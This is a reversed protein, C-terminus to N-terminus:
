VSSTKEQRIKDANDTLSGQMVLELCLVGLQEAIGM